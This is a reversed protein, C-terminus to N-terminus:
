PIMTADEAVAICPLISPPCPRAQSLDPIAPTVDEWFWAHYELTAEQPPLTITYSTITNPVYIRLLM